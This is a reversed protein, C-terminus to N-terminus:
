PYKKKLEDILEAQKKLLELQATALSKDQTLTTIKFDLLASPLAIISKAINLPIQFLGAASSPRKIDTVTLGGAVFTYNETQEVFRARSVLIPIITDNDPLLVIESVDKGDYTVSVIWPVLPRYCIADQPCIQTTSTEKSNQFKSLNTVILKNTSFKGKILMERDQNCSDGAVCRLIVTECGISQPQLDSVDLSRSLTQPASTGKKLETVLQLLQNTIEVSNDKSKTTLSKLLGNAENEIRFEDGFVASSNLEVTYMQASDPVVSPTSKLPPKNTGKCSDKGANPTFEITVMGKPLSYYHGGGKIGEATPPLHSTRIIKTSCGSLITVCSFFAVQFIHSFRITTNM